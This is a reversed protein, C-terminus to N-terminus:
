TDGMMCTGACSQRPLQVHPFYTFLPAIAFLQHKELEHKRWGGVVGAEPQSESEVLPNWRVYVLCRQVFRCWVGDRVVTVSQCCGIVHRPCM